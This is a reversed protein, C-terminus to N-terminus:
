LITANLLTTQTDVDQTTGLGNIHIETHNEISGVKPAYYNIISGSFSLGPIAPPTIVTNVQIVNSYTHGEVTRSLGVGAVTNTTQITIPVSMYTINYSQIWITGAIVNDSLYHNEIFNGGIQAPLAAYTYYDHGSINYYETGGTSVNYKHYTRGNVSTDSNSSTVTYNYNAAANANDKFAYNWTSGPSVTMFQDPATSKKDSKKCAAFFCSCALAGILIQKM